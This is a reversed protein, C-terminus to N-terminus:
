ACTKIKNQAEKEPRHAHLATAHRRTRIIKERRVQVFCCSGVVAQLVLQVLQIKWNASGALLSMAGMIGTMACLVRGDQSKPSNKFYLVGALILMAIGTFGSM